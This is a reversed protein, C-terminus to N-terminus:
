PQPANTKQCPRIVSIECVAIRLYSEFIIVSIQLLRYKVNLRWYYTLEGMGMKCMEVKKLVGFLIFIKFGISLKPIHHFDFSIIKRWKFWLKITRHSNNIGTLKKSLFAWIPLFYGFYWFTQPGGSCEAMPLILSIQNNPIIVNFCTM